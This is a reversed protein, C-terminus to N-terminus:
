VTCNHRPNSVCPLLCIVGCEETLVMRMRLLQFTMYRYRIHWRDHHLVSYTVRKRKIGMLIHWQMWCPMECLKICRYQNQCPIGREVENMFRGWPKWRGPACTFGCVGDACAPDVLVKM